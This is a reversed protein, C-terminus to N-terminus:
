TGEYDPFGKPGVIFAFHLFGQPFPHQADSGLRVILSQTNKEAEIFARARRNSDSPPSQFSVITERRLDRLVTPAAISLGFWLVRGEGLNSTQGGGQHGKSKPKTFHWRSRDKELSIHDVDFPRQTQLLDGRLIRIWDSTFDFGPFFVLRQHATIAFVGLWKKEFWCLSIRRFPKGDQFLRNLARSLPNNADTDLGESGHELRWQLQITQM